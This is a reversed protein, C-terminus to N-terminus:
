RPCLNREPSGMTRSGMLGWLAMKQNKSTGPPLPSRKPSCTEETQPPIEGMIVRWLDQAERQSDPKGEEQLSEM